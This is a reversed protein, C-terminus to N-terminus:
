GLTTRKSGEYIEFILLKTKISGNLLPIKRTPKLGIFKWPSDEAVFLGIKWGTFKQKLHDGVKKYFALFDEETWLREGYPMNTLLIGSPAPKDIDFFSTTELKMYKEVRARLANKSALDVYSADIDSAYIPYAPAEEKEQRAEDQLSRWLESNFDKLHEFGFLGKKRHIHCAKNLAKYCAEIAITGSGCMPDLFATTGDYGMMDLLASAMTEKIPAPHGDLRYGRKHLSHKSTNVGFVLTGKAYFATIVVQPEKVSVKPIELDKKQFHAEIALRVQRSFENSSPFEEGREAINADIRYTKKSSFVDSWAVKGALNFVGRVSVKGFSKLVRIFTSPTRARLHVRYYDRESVSFYVAKFAEKTETAGLSELEKAVVGKLEDPCLALLQYNM